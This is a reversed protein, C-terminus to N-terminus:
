RVSMALIAVGDRFTMLVAPPLPVRAEQESRVPCSRCTPGRNKIDGGHSTPDPLTAPWSPRALWLPERSPYRSLGGSSGTGGPRLVKSRWLVRVRVCVCVCACVCVCCLVCCVCLVVCVCCLVCCVCLVVCVCCLVCCECCVWVCVCVGVCVCVCVCDAEMWFVAFSLGLLDGCYCCSVNFAGAQM